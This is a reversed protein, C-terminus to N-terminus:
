ENLMETPFALSDSFLSTLDRFDDVDEQFNGCPNAQQSPSAPEPVPASPSHTPRQSAGKFTIAMNMKQKKDVM